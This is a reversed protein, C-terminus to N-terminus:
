HIVRSFTPDETIPRYNPDTKALLLVTRIELVEGRDSFNLGYSKCHICAFGFSDLAPFRVGMLFHKRSCQVHMGKTGTGLMKEARPDPRQGPPATVPFIELMQNGHTLSLGLTHCIGCGFGYRGLKDFRVIYIQHERTCSLPLWQTKTIAGDQEM